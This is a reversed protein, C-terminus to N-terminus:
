DTNENNDNILKSAEDIFEGVDEFSRYVSAFRVYAVNDLDRLAAMVAEGIASTPIENEYKGCFEREIDDAIGIIAEEPIPRKECAAIIGSIVKARDFKERTGDRKVVFVPVEEVREYTTFRRRCSICERRRRIMTEGELTRSDVVKDELQGCFPCKM